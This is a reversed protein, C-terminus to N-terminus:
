EQDQDHEDDKEQEYDKNRIKTENALWNAM